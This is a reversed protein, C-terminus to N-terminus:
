GKILPLQEATWSSVGGALRCVQGFGRQRLTKAVSGSHQGMKCVLIVTRDKYRDLEQVRSSFLEFPISMSGTIHGQNFESSPRIDVVVAQNQNMFRVAVQPSISQGARRSEVWYLAVLLAVMLGVLEYHNMSFEIARDM